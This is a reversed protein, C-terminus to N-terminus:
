FENFVEYKIVAAAVVCATEVRLIQPGLTLPPVGSADILKREQDSFGGESGIFVWIDQIESNIHSQLYEKVPTPSEGEYFFLGLQEKNQNFQNLFNELSIPESVVFPDCRGSQQMASLSIKKWREKKNNSVESLKKVFSFDSVLPQISKVGLEVSKEIIFDMKAYRPLSLALHIHPRKLPPVERTELIKAKARRKSEEVVEVFYAKGKENLIEFRSGLGQRCVDRIHHLSDGELNVCDDEFYNESVWYRRMKAGTFFWGM